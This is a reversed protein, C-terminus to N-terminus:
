VGPKPPCCWYMAIGFAVAAAMTYPNTAKAASAYVNMGAASKSL